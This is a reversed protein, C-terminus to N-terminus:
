VYNLCEQIHTLMNTFFTVHKALYQLTTNDNVAWDSISFIMCSLDAVIKALTQSGWRWVGKSIPLSLVTGFGEVWGLSGLYM